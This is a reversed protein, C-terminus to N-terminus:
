CFFRHEAQLDEFTKVHCRTENECGFTTRMCTICFEPHRPFNEAGGVERSCHQELLRKEGEDNELEDSEFRAEGLESPKRLRDTNCLDKQVHHEDFRFQKWACVGEVARARCLKGPLGGFTAARPPVLRGETVRSTSQPRAGGLPERPPFATNVERREISSRMTVVPYCSDRLVRAVFDRAEASCSFFTVAM